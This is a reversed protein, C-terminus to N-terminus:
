FTMDMGVTVGFKRANPNDLYNGRWNFDVRFPRFNGLGINEIGFGYEVYIKDKPALYDIESDNIELSEKSINGWATRVFGVERLKLKKILPIRNFIWGNFHHDLIFTSYSDTVFEYYDLQTFTGPVQGYSENGPIISLLSLPLGQFTKGAEFTILSKGLSGILFPKSFIFQLKDYEFESDFVGALGKTYRLMITPALTSHEYRDIGHQSYKAGPRAIFSLSLNTDTLQEERVGNKLFGINFLAPDASRITQYNGDLRIIFNKWPEISTYVNTKNIHSLKNNEGQSIISSSAFSRTMIGDSSTLQVGLQEIDRKTGIGIQFRNYPNFMYRAEAGYKFQHDRFGYALYGAVRWMDNQSFYTRAGARLRLGEVKNYGFTSYLDGIDISKGVNWYGSGIIEIGKVIRKFKPVQQLSDLMEYIGGETKSLREHRAKDWFDDSKNYVEETNLYKKRQSFSDVTQPQTFDFNKYSITRHAFLGKASSKKNILSLDLLIYERTPYFISDDKVDFQLNVFIDRVFNVDINKTSQMSIEKIAFSNTSVYFDGLFTFEGKRKPYYKIRYCDIGDINVTDNLEYEYVSFGDRAIPSVFNKDFFNIRNEYIDFEKYLNKLTQSVIENDSFGSSKNAILDKRERKTPQNQGYVKYISENIFAPLYAKGTVESTDIREFIFELKDFIKRNTLTSDINNIDFQLKEYEEYQYHPVSKLGNKKKRKWIENLIAYAPNEKKRKYVKRKKTIIAGQLEVETDERLVQDKNLKILFNYNVKSTLYTEFFEYGNASVEIISDNEQSELYFSGDSNSSTFVNANPLTIDAYPIPKNNSADIVTGSIKIQTLGLSGLLSTIIVMLYKLHHHM